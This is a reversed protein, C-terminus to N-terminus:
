FRTVEVLLTIQQACRVLGSNGDGSRKIFGQLKRKTHKSKEEKTSLSVPGHTSTTSLSPPPSRVQLAVVIQM